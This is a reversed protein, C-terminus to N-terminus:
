ELRFRYQFYALVVMFVLFSFNYISAILFTKVALPALMSLGGLALEIFLLNVLLLWKPLGSKNKWVAIIYLVTYILIVIQFAYALPQSFDSFYGILQDVLDHNDVSFQDKLRFITAIYSLSAHFVTGAVVGVYGTVLMPLAIKKNGEDVIVKYVYYIGSSFLPIGIVALYNSFILNKHSAQALVPYVSDISVTFFTEFGYIGDPYYALNIDAVVAIVAGLIGFFAFWPNKKM